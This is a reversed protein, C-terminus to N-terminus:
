KKAAPATPAAAPKAAPAAAPAAAAADAKVMGNNLKACVGEPLLIFEDASGSVTAQGACSHGTAKSACDNSGSKVVGFCKEKGAAAGMPAAMPAAAPAAATTPASPASPTQANAASISMATLAIAASTLFKTTQNM